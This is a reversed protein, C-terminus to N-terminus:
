RFSYCQDIKNFLSILPLYNIKGDCCVEDNLYNELPCYTGVLQTVNAGNNVFDVSNDIFVNQSYRNNCGNICLGIQEYNSIINSIITHKNGSVLIGIYCGSNVVNGAILDCNGQLCIGNNNDILSNDLIIQNNDQCFVATERSQIIHNNIIASRGFFTSIGVRACSIDNQLIVNLNSGVTKFNIGAKEHNILTNKYFVSNDIGYFVSRFGYPEDSLCNAVFQNYRGAVECGALCNQRMQCSIVLNNCGSVSIGVQENCNAKINILTNNNGEVCVGTKYQSFSINEVKVENARILLGCVKNPDGVLYVGGIDCTTLTINDVSIILQEEYTGSLIYVQDGCRAANIGEQITLYESSPVVIRSM